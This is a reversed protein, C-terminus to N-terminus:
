AVMETLYSYTMEQTHEAESERDLVGALGLLAPSACAPCQTACNGVCNCDQCLYASSLPIHQLMSHTMADGRDDKHFTLLKGQGAWLPVVQNPHICIAAALNGTSVKRAPLESPRTGAVRMAM